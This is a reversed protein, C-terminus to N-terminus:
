RSAWQSADATVRVPDPVTESEERRIRRITGYRRARWLRGCISADASDAQSTQPELACLPLPKCAMVLHKGIVKQKDEDSKMRVISRAASTDSAFLM